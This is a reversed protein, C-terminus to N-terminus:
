VWSDGDDDIKLIPGAIPAQPAPLEESSLPSLDWVSVTTHDPLPFDSVAQVVVVRNGDAEAEVELRLLQREEPEPAAFHLFHFSRADIMMPPALAEGIQRIPTSRLM